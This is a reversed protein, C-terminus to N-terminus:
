RLIDKTVNEVYTNSDNAGITQLVIVEALM